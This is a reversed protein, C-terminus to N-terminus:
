WGAMNIMNSYNEGEHLSVRKRVMSGFRSPIGNDDHRFLLNMRTEKETEWGILFVQSKEAHEWPPGRPIASHWRLYNM